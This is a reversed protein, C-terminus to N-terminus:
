PYPFPRVEHTPGGSSFHHRVGRIQSSGLHLGHHPGGLSAGTPGITAVFGSTPVDNNEATPVDRMRVCLNKRRKAYGELVM